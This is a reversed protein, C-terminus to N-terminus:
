RRKGWRLYFLFLPDLVYLVDDKRVFVKYIYDKENIIGQLKNLSERIQQKKPKKDTGIILKDIRLKIDDLNLGM